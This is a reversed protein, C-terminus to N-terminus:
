NAKRIGFFLFVFVSPAGLHRILDGVLEVGDFKARSYFTTPDLKQAEIRNFKKERDLVVVPSFRNRKKKLEHKMNGATLTVAPVNVTTRRPEASARSYLTALSSFTQNSFCFATSAHFFQAVFIGGLM